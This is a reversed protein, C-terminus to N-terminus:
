NTTPDSYVVASAIDASLAASVAHASEATLRRGIIIPLGDNLLGDVARRADSLSNVSDVHDRLWACLLRREDRNHLASISLNYLSPPAHDAAAQPRRGGLGGRMFSLVLMPIISEM